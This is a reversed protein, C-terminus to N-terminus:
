RFDRSRVDLLGLLPSFDELRGAILHYPSALLLGLVLPIESFTFSYVERRFEVHFVMLEAVISILAISWWHLRIHDGTPTLDLLALAAASAAVIFLGLLATRLAPRKAATSHAHEVADADGGAEPHARLFTADATDVVTYM